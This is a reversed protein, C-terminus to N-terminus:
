SGCVRFTTRVARHDSVASVLVRSGTAKFSDDALTYDIRRRPHGPPVTKGDGHGVLPWPDTFVAKTLVLPPTGPEDNLDGLLLRPHSIASMRTMVTGLQALRLSQATHQLHTNGVTVAVGDVDLTALLLGRRELGPRNPLHINRWTTIPFRSLLATGYERAPEGRAEPRRVRNAGFVGAMKLRRALWTTEDLDDSRAGNHRDVEQLAVVDARSVRIERAIRGLRLEGQRAGHHINFTLVTLPRTRQCSPPYSTGPEVPTPTVSGPSGDPLVDSPTSRFVLWGV